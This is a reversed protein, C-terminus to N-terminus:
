KQKLLDTVIDIMYKSSLALKEFTPAVAHISKLLSPSASTIIGVPLDYDRAAKVVAAGGGNPMIFDTLVVDIAEEKLLNVASEGDNARFVELNRKTLVREYIDLLAPEDDVILVKLDAWGKNIFLRTLDVDTDCLSFGYRLTTVDEASKTWITKLTVECDDMDLIVLDDCSFKKETFIGIGESSVDIFSCEIEKGERTKLRGSFDKVRVRRSARQNDPDIYRM